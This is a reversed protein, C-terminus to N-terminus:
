GVKELNSGCNPCVIDEKKVEKNCSRCFYKIITINEEM